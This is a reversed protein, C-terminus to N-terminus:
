NGDIEWKLDNARIIHATPLSEQQSSDKQNIIKGDSDCIRIEMVRDELPGRFDLLAFNRQNVSDGARHPSLDITRSSQRPHPNASSTLPSVTLEVLKLDVSYDILESHHVDGTLFVVGDIKVEGLKSMFYDWEEPYKRFSDSHPAESMIQGGSVVVHFSVPAVFSSQSKALVLSDILWDIQQYGFHPKRSRSRLDLANNESIRYFRNDLLYFNVDGWNFFTMIGPMEKFGYSPNVWYLKFM